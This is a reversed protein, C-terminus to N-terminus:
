CEDEGEGEIRMIRESMSRRLFSVSGRVSQEILKKREKGDEDDIVLSHICTAFHVEEWIERSLVSLPISAIFKETFFKAKEHVWKEWNNAIFVAIEEDFHKFVDHHKKFIKVIAEDPVRPNQAM